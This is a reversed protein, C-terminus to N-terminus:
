VVGTLMLTALTTMFCIAGNMWLTNASSAVTFSPETPFSFRNTNSGEWNSVNRIAAQLESRTGNTIGKYHYNDRHPLAMSLGNPPAASETTGYQDNSLGSSLWDGSLSIAVISLFDTNPTFVGTNDECYVIVTDGSASLRFSGSVTTWLNSYLLNSDGYGFVTGAPVNTPFVLSVTGENTRFGTGTWANDTMFIRAGAPVDELAVLEVADPDDMNVGTVMLSGASLCISPVSDNNNNNDSSPSTPPATPVVVTGGCGEDTAFMTQVLDPYDVFPNRNGQWRACAGDNRTRERDDPPDQAHWALLESLYGMWTDKDTPCNTLVLNPETTSSGGTGSYRVDMYFLMRAIDGRVDIPPLWVTSNSATDAAAERTAPVTCGNDTNGNNDDLCDAFYKNSRAANVNWDSPRLHHIDTFDRGSQGVGRSKPWVHERNWTDSTGFPTAPIDVNRYILRVTGAADGQDLDILARWVDVKSDNDTYPLFARHSTELLSSLDSKSWSSLDTTDFDRYYSVKDCGPYVVTQQQANTSFISCLSLATLLVSRLLAKPPFSLLSPSERTM